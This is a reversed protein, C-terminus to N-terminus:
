SATADALLERGDTTWSSNCRDCRAGGSEDVPLDLREGCACVWGVQQAPVGVVLAHPRVRRTVTAGAGIFAHHGIDHGCVVTANAGITAGQGVTTAAFEGRRSVHARPRNVNTFVCSPGCFVDDQLVVGDYISVNNQLKCRDGIVAGSQVFVNQGLVCDEGVVAGTMVHSFHWVRTRPGIRAGDGVVATEHIHAPHEPAPTLKPTQPQGAQDLSKQAADLVALVRLGEAGDSIPKSAPNEIADIFTQMEARLPEVPDIAVPEPEARVPEPVGDRWQVGHRYLVLKEQLPQRDDFVAMADEGVVVLRQEKFPHLWSVYIHAQVGNAWALQTVTTDAIQPHLFHGGTAIVREPMSGVIRLLIAIDHPAFSWLSSEERRFRGLNLRHSYMCRMRGLTGANILEALRTIAPHYHLLHGVMLRLNREKALAVLRAGDAINLALPKEVFVHQGRQLFYEALEAHQAAPAAIAVAHDPPVDAATAFLPVEPMAAAAKNRNESSTDCVGALAGLEHLNRGINRGWRGYGVLTVRTAATQLEPM